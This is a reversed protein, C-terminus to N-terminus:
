LRINYLSDHYNFVWMSLFYHLLKIICFLKLCGLIIFTILVYTISINLDIIGYM